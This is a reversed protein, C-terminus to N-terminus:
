ISYLKRIQLTENLNVLQNWNFVANSHVNFGQDDSQNLFRLAMGCLILYKKKFSIFFSFVVHTQTNPNKKYMVFIDVFCEGAM